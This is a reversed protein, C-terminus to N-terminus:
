FKLLKYKKNKYDNELMVTEGNYLIHIYIFIEDEPNLANIYNKVAPNISYSIISEDGLIVNKSPIEKLKNGKVLHHWTEGRKFYGDVDEYTATNLFGGSETDVSMVSLIRSNKKAGTFQEFYLNNESFTPILSLYKLEKESNNKEEFGNMTQWLKKGNFDFKAVLLKLESSKNKSQLVSVAYYCEKRFDIYVTGSAPSKPVRVTGNQFSKTYYSNPHATSAYKFSKNDISIELKTEKIFNGEFDFESVNLFQIDANKEQNSTNFEKSLLFIKNNAVELLTYGYVSENGVLAKPKYSSTKREFTKLDIKDLIWEVPKDIKNNQNPKYGKDKPGTLIIHNNTLKLFDNGDKYIDKNEIELSKLETGQDGVYTYTTKSNFINIVAGQSGYILYHGKINKRFLSLGEESSYSNIIKENLLDITKIETNKGRPSYAGVGEKAVITLQDNDWSLSTIDKDNIQLDIIETQALSIIPILFLTTLFKKM